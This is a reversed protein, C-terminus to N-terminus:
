VQQDICSSVTSISLTQCGLVPNWGRRLPTCPTVPQSRHYILPLDFDGMLSLQLQQHSSGPTHHSGPLTVTTSSLLQTSPLGAAGSCGLAAWLEQSVAPQAWLCLRCQRCGGGVGGEWGLAPVAALLKGVRNVECSDARTVCGRRAPETHTTHPMGQPM